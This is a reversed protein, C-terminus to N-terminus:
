PLGVGPQEVRCSLLSAQDSLHLEEQTMPPAACMYLTKRDAGGLAVAFVAHDGTDVKDIIEGGPAIRLAGNGAADGIWLAGEADLAMGDPLPVRAAIADLVSTFPQPSFAAWIRRRSLSGDAAVDFASIRPAFTESVFLTRGDPTLAMGNPFIMDKAAVSASGDPQVLMLVTSQIIPDRMINWGFNGVYARGVPDVLLDNCHFPADRSLDAVTELQSGRLRMLACDIMSVVLLDGNPAFGLGSPQNPVACITEMKGAEDFALVRRSNFDSAYLRGHHWRPGELFSLGSAVCNVSHKPKM